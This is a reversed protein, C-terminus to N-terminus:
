WGTKSETLRENQQKPTRTIKLKATSNQRSKRVSRKRCVEDCYLAGRRKGDLSVGCYVCRGPTSRKKAEWSEGFFVLDRCGASCYVQPRGAIAYRFTQNLLKGCANCKETIYFGQARVYALEAATLRM